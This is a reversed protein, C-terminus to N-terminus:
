EMIALRPCTPIAPISDYATYNYWYKIGSATQWIRFKAACHKCILVPKVGTTPIDLRHGSKLVMKKIVEVYNEYNLNMKKSEEFYNKFTTPKM